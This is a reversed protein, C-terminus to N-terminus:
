DVKNAPANQDAVHVHPLVKELTRPGIGRVRTLDAVHRYPGNAARDAIIRDALTPGIGPLQTLEDRSAQNLDIPRSPPQKPGSRSTTAAPASGPRTEAEETVYLYDRLRDSRVEGFGPVAALGDLRRFRGHETRHAVIREALVPGVGPLQALEAGTAENLDLRYPAADVRAIRAVPVLTSPQGHNGLRQWAHQALLLVLAGLVFAFALQM